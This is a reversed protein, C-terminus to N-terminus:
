GSSPPWAQATVVTPERRGRLAALPFQPMELTIRVINLNAKHVLELIKGRILILHSAVGADDFPNLIMTFGNLPTENENERFCFRLDYFPIHITPKTPFHVQSGNRSRLDLFVLM